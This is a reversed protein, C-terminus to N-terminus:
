ILIRLEESKAYLKLLGTAGGIADYQAQDLRALHLHILDLARAVKEAETKSKVMNIYHLDGGDKNEGFSLGGVLINAFLSM